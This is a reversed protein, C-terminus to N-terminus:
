APGVTIDKSKFNSQRRHDKLVSLRDLSSETTVRAAAICALHPHGGTVNMTSEFDYKDWAAAMTDSQLPIIYQYKTATVMHRERKERTSESMCFCLSAFVDIVSTVIGHPSRFKTGLIAQVVTQSLM